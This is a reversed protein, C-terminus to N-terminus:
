TIPFYVPRKPAVTFTGGPSLDTIPHAYRAEFAARDADNVVSAFGVGNSLGSSLLVQAFTAFGAQDVQGSPGILTSASSLVGETQHFGGSPRSVPATTEDPPTRSADRDERARLALWMVITVVTLLAVFLWAAWRYRRLTAASIVLQTRPAPKMYEGPR